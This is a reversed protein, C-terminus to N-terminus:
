RGLSGNLAQALTRIFGREVDGFRGARVMDQILSGFVSTGGDAEFRRTYRLFEHALGEGLRAGYQGELGPVSWWNRGTGKKPRTSVFSLLEIALISPAKAPAHDLATTTTPKTAKPM